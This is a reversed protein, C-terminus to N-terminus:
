LYGSIRPGVRSLFDSDRDPDVTRMAGKALIAHSPGMHNGLIPQGELMQTGGIRPPRTMLATQETGVSVSLTEPNPAIIIGTRVTSISTTIEALDRFKPWAIRYFTLM